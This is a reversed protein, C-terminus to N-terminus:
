GDNPEECWSFMRQIGFTVWDGATSYQFHVHLKLRVIWTQFTNWNEILGVKVSDYIECRCSVNPKYKRVNVVGVLRISWAPSQRNQFVVTGTCKKLTTKDSLEWHRICNAAWLLFCFGYNLGCQEHIGVLSQERLTVHRWGVNGARWQIWEDLWLVSLPPWQFLGLVYNWVIKYYRRLGDSNRWNHIYNFGVESFPGWSHVGPMQWRVPCIPLFRPLLSFPNM